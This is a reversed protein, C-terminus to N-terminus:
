SDPHTLSVEVFNGHFSNDFTVAPEKPGIDRDPQLNNPAGGVDVPVVHMEAIGDGNTDFWAQYTETPSPRYWEGDGIHVTGQTVRNSVVVNVKNCGWDNYVYVVDGNSIGRAAADVTNMTAVGTWSEKLVAVNDYVSHARRRHHAQNHQLTYVVKQNNKVKAGIYSGLFAGTQSNFGEVPPAYMPKPPFASRYYGGDSHQYASGLVQDRYFYFPSFFNIKGTDTPFKGATYAALGIVAKGVPQPLQFIGQQSLTQFSPLTAGPNMALLSSAISAGAWQQAMLQVDTATGQPGYKGYQIGLRNLIEANIVNTDMAQYMAPIVKNSCYYVQPKSQFSNYEHHCTQPLVIDCYAMTPTIFHDMGYIYKVNQLAYLFKSVPGRRQNFANGDAAIMEIRLRGDNGSVDNRTSTYAGLDIKNLALVDARLQAYSRNDTGQLIVNAAAYASCSITGYSTATTIPNTTSGLTVPTPEGGTVFGPGGGAKNSNGTMAALAIAMMVMYYGSVSRGAGGYVGFILAPKATAYAIALNEIISPSVGSIQSAWNLVGQYGGYTTMLSNLYEVFSMGTPTTFTQGAYKVGTIPNSMTSQSVCTDGPYFGFCYQQLFNQDHLGKQYIVNAMAALIAGDTGPRPSIFKPLNYQPFGTSLTAAADTFLTDMTVIPIGAEKAKTFYWHSPFQHTYSVTVNGGINLIFKSNLMDVMGNSNVASGILGYKAEAMNDTSPSGAFNVSVGFYNFVGAGNYGTTSSAPIYGLASKRAITTQYWGAITDYAQEWSIQVFGNLNGREITQMLPVKLRDPQYTRKIQSYGRQCARFEPKNIDEDLASAGAIPIDSALSTVKQMVGNKVWIKFGCRGGCNYPHSVMVTTLAPDITLNDAPSAVAQGVAANTSYSSQGGGGGCGYIAATASLAGLGKLFGRRSVETKESIVKKLERLAEMSDEKDM